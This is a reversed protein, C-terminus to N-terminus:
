FPRYDIRGILFVVVNFYVWLVYKLLIIFIKNNLFFFIIRKNLNFRQNWVVHVVFLLYYRFIMTVMSYFIFWKFKLIYEFKTM